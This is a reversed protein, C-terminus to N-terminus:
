ASYVYINESIHQFQQACWQKKSEDSQREQENEACAESRAKLDLTRTAALLVIATIFRDAVAASGAV